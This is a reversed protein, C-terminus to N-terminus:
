RKRWGLEGEGVSSPETESLKKGEDWTHDARVKTGTHSKGRILSVPTQHSRLFQVTPQQLLAASHHASSKAPMVARRGSDKLGSGKAM